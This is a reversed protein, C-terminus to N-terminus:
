DGDAAERQLFPLTVCTWGDISSDLYLVADADMLLCLRREVNMLGYGEQTGESPTSRLAKQWDAFHGGSDAVCLERVGQPSVRSFIRVTGTGHGSELIGHMLANEVLPQLTIKPLTLSLMDPAVDIELAFVDHYRICQIDFYHRVIELEKEVTLVDAGNSLCLRYFRTLSRIAKDAKEGEDRRAMWSIAELTNYLFHPKIQAQLASIELRRLEQEKAESEQMLAQIRDLLSNHATVLQGVEDNASPHLRQGIDARQISQVYRHFRRIRLATTWIVPFAFLIGCLALGVGVLASNIYEPLLSQTLAQQDVALAFRWGSSPLARYYVTHGQWQTQNLKQAAFGVVSESDLATVPVRAAGDGTAYVLGGDSTELYCTLYARDTPLTLMRAIAERHLDIRLLAILRSYDTLDRIPAILAPDDAGLADGSLFQRWGWGNFASQVWPENRVEDLPLILSTSDTLGLAPNVYVSCSYDGSNDFMTYLLQWLQLKNHLHESVTFSETSALARNIDEQHQFINALHKMRKEFRDLSEYRDAFSSQAQAMRDAYSTQYGRTCIYVSCLVLTLVLFLSVTMYKRMISADLFRQKVRRFVQKM